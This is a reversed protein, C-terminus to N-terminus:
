TEALRGGFCSVSRNEEDVEDTRCTKEAVLDLRHIMEDIQIVEGALLAM